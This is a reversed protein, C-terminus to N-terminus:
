ARRRTAATELDASRGRAQAQQRAGARAGQLRRAPRLRRSVPPAAASAARRQSAEVLIARYTHSGLATSPGGLM